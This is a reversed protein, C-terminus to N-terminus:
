KQCSCSVREQQGSCDKKLCAGTILQRKKAFQVITTVGLFVLMVIVSLGLIKLM